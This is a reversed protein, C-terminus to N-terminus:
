NGEMGLLVANQTQTYKYVSFHLNGLPRLDSDDNQLPEM